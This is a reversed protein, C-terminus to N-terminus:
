WCFLLCKCKSLFGLFFLYISGESPRRKTLGNFFFMDGSFCAFFLCVGPLFWFLIVFDGLIM